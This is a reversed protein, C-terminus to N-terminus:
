ERGAEAELEDIRCFASLHCYTCSTNRDKPDVAAHGAAFQEGLGELVGQWHERLADWELDHTRAMRSSDFADIKPIADGTTAIGRFGLSGPRVIGFLIAVPAEDESVAYIPLQPETPREGLWDSPVAEGTKYDIIALGQGEIRDIRDIRIHTEIGGLVITKEVETGVVEFPARESEVHLWALMLRVLRARELERFRRSFSAARKREFVSLATDAVEWLQMELHEGALAAALVESSRIRHWIYDLGAHLLRGRTMADFGPQPRPLPRAGLRVEAFARIPCLAQLRFIQTGGQVTEFGAVAPGRDDVIREPPMDAQLALFFDTVDALAMDDASAEQIHEILPSRKLERDGDRLPSSVVVRNSGAVLRDQVNKAFELEQEATARPMGRDRQWSLPIFPNPRPPPPWAEDTMGSLWLRDFGLGNAQLPEMIQVPVDPTLPQFPADAALRELLSLAADARIAPQVPDLAAFDNLLERFREASQHEGSNLVSDGPWGMADLLMRYLRVWGSPPHAHRCQALHPGISQLCAEFVPRNSASGRQNQFQTFLGAMRAVPVEFFGQERLWIDFLARNSSESLGGRLYLSRLLRGLQEMSLMGTSLRLVLIAAAVINYDGLVTAASINYPRVMGGSGPLASGPMLVEDFVRTVLRRNAALGPVLVAATHSEDADLQARVWRAAARLEAETDAFSARMVSEGRVEGMSRSLTAGRKTLAGLLAVQQPNLQDFGCLLIHDPASVVGTQIAPILTDPLRAQDIWAAERCRAYYVRMWRSFAQAEASAAGGATPDPLRWVQTLTWADRALRATEPVNLLGDNYPSQQVINEWLVREQSQSLLSRAGQPPAYGSWLVDEALRQLWGEWPLVRPSPWADHGLSRQLNAFDLRIQRALRRGSTVITAGREIARLVKSDM